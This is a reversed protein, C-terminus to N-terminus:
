GNLWEDPKVRRIHTAKSGPLASKEYHAQAGAMTEADSYFTGPRGEPDKYYVAWQRVGNHEESMCERERGDAVEEETLGCDACRNDLVRMQHGPVCGCESM